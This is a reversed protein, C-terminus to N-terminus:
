ANGGEDLYTAKLDATHLMVALPFMEYAKSISFDGGKVRTDFGGMHWMIAVAEERSLRLFGNLIYYSKEGHGIPLADEYTYYPQKEWAGTTQNKVNRTSVQYVNTKCLDHFLSAIAITEDSYPSDSGYEHSIDSQLREYVNLSHQCLGGEVSLHYRTSAPAVFFDTTELWQILQEIGPRQIKDRAIQLFKEKNESINIMNEGKM